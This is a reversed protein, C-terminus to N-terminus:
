NVKCLNIILPKIYSYKITVNIVVFVDFFMYLNLHSNQSKLHILFTMTISM